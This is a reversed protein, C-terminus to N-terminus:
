AEQLPRQGLSECFRLLYGDPDAVVFQRQGVELADKRYWRDEPDIFLEIKHGSLADLLPQVTPVEIQLNLGRGFPYGEPKFAGGYTLGVGIQDIMLEATGLELFAFGEEPRQYRITFGLIGCYFKLSRACETVAFEPVLSNM